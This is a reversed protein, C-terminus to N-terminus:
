NYSTPFNSLVRLVWKRTQLISILTPNKHPHCSIICACNHACHRTWSLQKIWAHVNYFATTICERFSPKALEVKMPPIYYDNPWTGGTWWCHGLNHYLGHRLLHTVARHGCPWSLAWWWAQRQDSQTPLCQPWCRPLNWALTTPFLWWFTTVVLQGM